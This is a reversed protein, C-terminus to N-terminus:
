QELRRYVKYGNTDAVCEYDNIVCKLQDTLIWRSKGTTDTSFWGSQVGIAPDLQRMFQLLYSADTRVTNAFPDLASNDYHIVDIAQRLAESAPQSEYRAEEQFVPLPQVALVVAVTVACCALSVTSLWYRRRIALYGIVLWLFPAMLRLGRWDRIEYFACTLGFVALLLLSCGLFNRRFGQNRKLFSCVLCALMVCLYLGFFLREALTVRYLFDMINAKGHSLLRRWAVSPGDANLLQHLFSSAYPATVQRRILLCLAALALACPIAVALRHNWRFDSVVLIAPVLLLAYTPHILCGIAIVAAGLVLMWAKHYQHYGMMFALFLLMLAYGAWEMMSATCYLLIPLYFVMMGALTFAVAPRPKCILCFVLAAAAMWLANGIVIASESLGFLKVAWGYLLVPAIGNVGLNGWSATIEFYGNAGTHFGAKSFSLLSRWLDLEDTWVPRASFANRGMALSLIGLLLFPSLVMVAWGLYTRRNGVSKRM